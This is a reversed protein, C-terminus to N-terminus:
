NGVDPTQLPSPANKPNVPTFDDAGKGTAGKAELEVAKGDQNDPALPVQDPNDDIAAENKEITKGRTLILLCKTNIPPTVEKNVSYVSDNNGQLLPTNFISWATRFCAVLDKEMDALFVSKGTDPDKTYSSGTFAFSIEKMHKKTLRNLAFEEIRRRVTKGNKDQYEVYIYMPDGAPIISDGEGQLNNNPEYTCVLMAYLVDQPRCYLELLSEHIKGGDAVALFEIGGEALCFRGEIFVRRKKSDYWVVMPTKEGIRTSQFPKPLEKYVSAPVDVGTALEDAAPAADATPTAPPTEGGPPIEAGVPLVPQPAPQEPAPLPAPAPTRPIAVTEVPQAASLQPFAVLAGVAGVALLSGFGAAGGVLHTGARSKM